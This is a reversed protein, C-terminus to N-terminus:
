SPLVNILPWRFAPVRLSGTAQDMDSCSLREAVWDGVEVGALAEIGLLQGTSYFLLIWPRVDWWPHDRPVLLLQSYASLQQIMTVDQWIHCSKSSTEGLTNHEVFGQTNLSASRLTCKTYVNNHAALMCHKRGTHIFACQPFTPVSKNASYAYVEHTCRSLLQSINLSM